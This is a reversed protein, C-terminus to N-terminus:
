YFELVSSKKEVEHYRTSKPETLTCVTDRTSCHRSPIVRLIAGVTEDYEDIDIHSWRDGDYESKM